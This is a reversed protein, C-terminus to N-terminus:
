HYASHLSKRRQQLLSSSLSVVHSSHFSFATVPSVFSFFFYTKDGGGRRLGASPPYVWDLFALLFANRVYKANSQKHRKLLSDRLMLASCRLPLSTGFHNQLGVRLITKARRSPWFPFGRNKQDTAFNSIEAVPLSVVSPLPENFHDERTSKIEM